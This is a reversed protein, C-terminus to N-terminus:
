NTVVHLTHSYPQKIEDRGQYFTDLKKKKASEAGPETEPM